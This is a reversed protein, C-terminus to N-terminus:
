ANLGEITITGTGAGSIKAGNCKLLNRYGCDRARTSCKRYSNDERYTGAMMVSLTAGVSVKDM